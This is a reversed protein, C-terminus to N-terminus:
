ALAEQLEFAKKLMQDKVAKRALPGLECKSIIALDALEVRLSTIKQMDTQSMPGLHAIFTLINQTNCLVVDKAFSVM